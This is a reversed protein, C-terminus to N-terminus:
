YLFFKTFFSSVNLYSWTSEPIQVDANYKAIKMYGSSDKVSIYAFKVGDFCAGGSQKIGSPTINQNTQALWDIKWICEGDDACLWLIRDSFLPLLGRPKQRKTGSLGDFRLFHAPDTPKYSRLSDDNVEAAYIFSDTQAIAIFEAGYGNSGDIDACQQWTSLINNTRFVEGDATCAYYYGSFYIFGRVHGTGHDFAATETAWGSQYDAWGPYYPQSWAASGNAEGILIRKTTGDDTISVGAIDYTGTFIQITKYRINDMDALDCVHLQGNNGGVFLLKDTSDYAICTHASFTASSIDGFVPMPRQLGAADVLIPWGSETVGVFKPTFVSGVHEGGGDVSGTEPDFVNDENKFVTLTAKVYESNNAEVQMEKIFFSGDKDLFPRYIENLVKYFINGPFRFQAEVPLANAYFPATRRYRNAVLSKWDIELGSTAISGGTNNGNYFILRPSFNETYQSFQSSNGRQYTVPYGGKHTLLTSFKTEIEESEDGAPNYNYDQIDITLRAWMLVDIESKGDPADVTEQRYEYYMKESKVLRIQGIPPSAIAALDAFVDVAEAIDEDRSSIDTYNENFQQDDPDHNFKFKLCLNQRKGPLWRSVRYKSLDFPEMDFLSERNICDVDNIGTFHFFTNTLNQVSLLLENLEFKPLLKKLQFSSTDWGMESVRRIEVLDDELPLGELTEDHYPETKIYTIVTFVEANCISVNHYLCLTKLDDDNKLFNNRMFFKNEQLIETILRHLFPFPSVVIAGYIKDFIGTAVGNKIWEATSDSKVGEADFANVMFDVTEDFKRTLIERETDIPDKASGDANYEIKKWPETDGKDVWFGRNQVRVTCYIDTDPDYNPKNEFDLEGLLNHDGILKERQADSLSRLESQIYGSYGNETPKTIVLTGYIYLYGRWRLEARPFKRDNSKAMKAFRGPFGLYNRNVDNDPITVDLCLPAPIENFCWCPNKYILPVGFDPDLILQHNDITLTFM